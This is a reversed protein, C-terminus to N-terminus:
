FILLGKYQDSWLTCDNLAIEAPNKKVLTSCCGLRCSSILLASNHNPDHFNLHNKKETLKWTTMQKSVWQSLWKRALHSVRQHVLVNASQPLCKTHAKWRTWLATKCKAYKQLARGGDNTKILTVATHSDVLQGKQTHTHTHTHTHNGNVSSSPDTYKLLSKAICIFMLFLM